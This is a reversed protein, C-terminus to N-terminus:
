FPSLLCLRRPAPRGGGALAPAAIEKLRHAKLPRQSSETISRSSEREVVTLSRSRKLKDAHKAVARLHVPERPSTGCLRQICVLLLLNRQQM